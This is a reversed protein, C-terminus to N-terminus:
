TGVECTEQECSPCTYLWTEGLTDGGHLHRVEWEDSDYTYGCEPCPEGEDLPRRIPGWDVEDWDPSEGSENRKSM